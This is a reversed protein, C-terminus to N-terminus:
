EYDSNGEYASEDIASSFDPSEGETSAAEVPIDTSMAYDRRDFRNDSPRNALTSGDIFEMMIPPGFRPHEIVGFVSVVNPHYLGRYLDYEKKLLQAHTM